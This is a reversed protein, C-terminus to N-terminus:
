QCMVGQQGKEYGILWSVLQGFLSVGHLLYQGALLGVGLRYVEGIKRLGL